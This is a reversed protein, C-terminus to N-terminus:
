SEVILLSSPPYSSECTRSGRMGWTGGRPLVCEALGGDLPRLLFCRWWGVPPAENQPHSTFSTLVYVFNCSYQSHKM